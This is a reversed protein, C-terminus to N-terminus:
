KEHFFQTPNVPKKERPHSDRLPTERLRSPVASGSPHGALSVRDNRSQPRVVGAVPRPRPSSERRAPERDIGRQALSAASLDAPGPRRSFGIDDIQFSLYPYM